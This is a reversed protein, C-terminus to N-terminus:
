PSTLWSSFFFWSIKVNFFGDKWSKQFSPFDPLVSCKNRFPQLPRSHLTKLKKNEKRKSTKWPAHKRKGTASMSWVGVQRLEWKQSEYAITNINAAWLLRVGKRYGINLVIRTNQRRYVMRDRKPARQGRRLETWNLETAWNHGVRQLGMFQLM